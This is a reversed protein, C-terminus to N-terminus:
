SDVIILLNRDAGAAIQDSVTELSGESIETTQAYSEIALESVSDKLKGAEEKLKSMRKGFREKQEPTFRIFSGFMAGLALSLGAIVLPRERAFQSVGRSIRDTRTAGRKGKAMQIDKGAASDTTCAIPNSRRNHTWRRPGFYTGAPRMSLM